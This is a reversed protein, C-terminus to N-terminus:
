LPGPKPYYDKKVWLKVEDKPREVIGEGKTKSCAKMFAIFDIVHMPGLRKWSPLFLDKLASPNGQM